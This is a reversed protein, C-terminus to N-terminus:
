FPLVIDEEDEAMEGRKDAVNNREEDEDRCAEEFTCLDPNGFLVEFKKTDQYWRVLYSQEKNVDPNEIARKFKAIIQKWNVKGNLTGFQSSGEKAIIRYAGQGLVNYARYIKNGAKTVKFKKGDTSKKDVLAILKYYYGCSFCYIYEQGTKYYFDSYATCKCQPCEVYDIVSGM